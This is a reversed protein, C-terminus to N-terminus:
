SAVIPWRITNSISVLALMCRAPIQSFVRVSARAANASTCGESEKEMRVKLPWVWGSSRNSWHRSRGSCLRNGAARSARFPRCGPQPLVCRPLAMRVAASNSSSFGCVPGCCIMTRVSRCSPACSSPRCPWSQGVPSCSVIFVTADVATPLAPMWRAGPWAVSSVSLM